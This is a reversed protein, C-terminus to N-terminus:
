PRKLKRSDKPNQIWNKNGPLGWAKIYERVILHIWYRSRKIGAKLLKSRIEVIKFGEAYAEMIFRDVFNGFLTENCKTSVSLFYELRANAENSHLGRFVNASNQKLRREKTEIDNFGSEKLKEEYISQLQKFAKSSYQSM